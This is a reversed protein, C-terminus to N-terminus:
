IDDLSVESKEAKKAAKEARIAAIKAQVQPHKRLAKRKEEDLAALSTAVEGVDKGKLAAIAEALEGVRPGKESGGRRAEWEGKQLMEIVRQAAGIAVQYDGKAGAFSDRIKQTAGHVMLDSKTDEPVDALDIELKTGDGFNFILKQDEDTVECFKVKTEESM